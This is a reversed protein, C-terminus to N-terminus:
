RSWLKKDYRQKWDVPANPVFSDEKVWNWKEISGFVTGEDTYADPQSEPRVLVVFVRGEPIVKPIVRGDFRSGTWVFDAVPRWSYVLVSKDVEKDGGDMLPRNLGQFLHITDMMGDQVIGYYQAITTSLGLRLNQQLCAERLGLKVTQEPAAPSRAEVIDVYPGIRQIDRM